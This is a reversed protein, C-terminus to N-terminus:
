GFKQYKQPVKRIIGSVIRVKSVKQPCEQYNWQSDSNWPRFVIEPIETSKGIEPIEPSLLEPSLIEPSLIPM